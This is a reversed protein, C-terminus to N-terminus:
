LHFTFKYKSYIYVGNNEENYQLLEAYMADNNKLLAKTNIFM